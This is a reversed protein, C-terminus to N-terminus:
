NVWASRANTLNNVAIDNAKTAEKMLYVASAEIVNLISPPPSGTILSKSDNFYLPFEKPGVGMPNECNNDSALVGIAHNRANQLGTLAQTYRTEWKLTGSASAQAYLAEAISQVAYAVRLSRAARDRARQMGDDVYGHRCATPNTLAADKVYAEILGMTPI